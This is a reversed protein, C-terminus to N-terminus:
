PASDHRRNAVAMGQDVRYVSPVTLLITEPIFPKASAIRRWPARAMARVPWEEM